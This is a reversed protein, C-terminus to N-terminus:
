LLASSISAAGTGMILAGEFLLNPGGSYSLERLIGDRSIALRVQSNSLVIREGVELTVPQRKPVAGVHQQATCGAIALNAVLVAVHRM